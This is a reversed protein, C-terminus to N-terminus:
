ASCMGHQKSCDHVQVLVRLRVHVYACAMRLANHRMHLASGPEYGSPVGIVFPGCGVNHVQTSFAIVQTACTGNCRDGKTCTVHVKM